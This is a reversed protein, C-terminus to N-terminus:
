CAPSKKFFIKTIGRSRLWRTPPLRQLITSSVSERLDATVNTRLPRAIHASGPTLLPSRASPFLTGRALPIWPSSIPLQRFASPLFRSGISYQTLLHRWPRPHAIGCMIIINSLQNTAFILNTLAISHGRFYSRSVPQALLDWRIPDRITRCDHLVRFSM